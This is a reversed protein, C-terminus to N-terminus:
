ETYYINSPDSIIYQRVRLKEYIQLRPLDLKKQNKLISTTKKNKADGQSTSTDDTTSDKQKLHKPKLHAGAGKWCREAPYNTKDCNPCKPYEKKTSQGDNSKLEEKRKLKRYKDKTNGQKKCYNCTIGADIGSSLLGNGAKTATPATSMTPVPIDDGEELGNLELERELHTVIEEYIANELGAMNVSRKLKPQLKAYLLSDIMAQGNEGFAEEAGQNLEELFDPLKM